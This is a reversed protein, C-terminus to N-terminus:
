SLDELSSFGPELETKKIAQGSEALAQTLGAGSQPPPLAV